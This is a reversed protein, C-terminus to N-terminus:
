KLQQLLKLLEKESQFGTVRKIETGDRYIAVVPLGEIHIAKSLTKAEDVNVREIAVKGQFQNKLKSLIPEMQKCPLCWEAYFDVLVYKNAKLMKDFDTQTFLEKKPQVVNNLPLGTQEWAMIGGKLEYITSFGLDQMQKVANASRGGGKCYVYVPQTKDLKKIQEKFTTDYINLNKAQDLHGANFEESTRVDLIIAATNTKLQDQFEVPPITKSTNQAFVTSNFSLFFFSILIALLSSQKKHQYITM